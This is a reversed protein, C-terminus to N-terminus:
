INRYEFYDFDAHMEQTHLDQAFLGVFCGTFKHFPYEDSLISADLVDGYNKWNIGDPSYSFQLESHNLEAKLYIKNWDTLKVRFEPYETKEGNDGKILGLTRGGLSESNYVRLYYLNSASYFCTLGASQSAHWPSFELCTEATFKFSTIRRAILSMRRSSFISGQGRIRLHGARATLSAWSPDIPIRYSQYKNDLSESDFEDRAPKPPFPHETLQPAETEMLAMNGGSSLRLWGEDNWYAKQISTERGLPCRLSPLLPRSCLHPIYWEGNQTEVLSGHGSKQLISESNYRNPKACDIIHRENFEEPVNTLMAGEPDAEYPGDIAKSRAMVVAHGYGTGGEATMLYYFGNRKYLHPAELCGRDTGGRYIRKPRGLLKQTKPCWEQLVIPGPQEYGSRTEWELNTVWKRGDDDHFLSPDFGSSNIYIPESWPGEIHKATVVFNDMDFFQSCHSYMNTYVLYYLQDAECYSLCPAWVGKATEVGTLDLQSLRNLPHPLLKWNKLDRSHYIAVGPFWEFTSTALYYDSGVRIISPDPNFGPLIPNRIHTM